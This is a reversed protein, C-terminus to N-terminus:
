PGPASTGAMARIYVHGIGEVPQGAVTGSVACRGFWYPIGMLSVEQGDGSFEIALDVGSSASLIRWAVGFRDGAAGITTSDARLTFDSIVVPAGAPRALSMSHSSTEEGHLVSVTTGDELAIALITGPATKEPPDGWSHQLLGSGFAILTDGGQVIRAGARGRPVLVVRETKGNGVPQSGLDVAPAGPQLDLSLELDDVRVRVEYAGTESARELRNGRYEELLRDTEHRTQHVLPLAIQRYTASGGDRDELVLVYIGSARLGLVSGTFFVVSLGIHGGDPATIETLLTWSEFAADPHRPDHSPPAAQAAALAPAM